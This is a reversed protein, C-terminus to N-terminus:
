RMAVLHRRASDVRQRQQEYSISLWLLLGGGVALLLWRPLLDTVVAHQTLAAAVCVAVGIVLPSQLAWARGAAVLAAGLAVALALRVLDAPDDTLQVVTPLTLLTLGSALVPWSSATRARLGLAALAVIALAPPATYAEVVGVGRDAMVAWSSASAAGTAVWRLWRRDPRWVAVAASSVALVALAAALWLPDHELALGAGLGFAVGAVVEVAAAHDDFRRVAAAVLLAVGAATALAVGAPGPGDTTAVVTATVLAVVDAACVAAVAAGARGRAPLAAGTVAAAVALAAITASPTTLAAALTALSAAALAVPAGITANSRRIVAVACAVLVLGAVAGGGAPWVAIGLALVLPGGLVAALVGAARRHEVAVALGAVLAAVVVASALTAVDPRAIVVAPVSPWPAGARHGVVELLWGYTAGVPVTAAGVVPVMGLSAGRRAPGPGMAALATVGAAVALVVAMDPWGAARGSLAGAVGLTGAGWMGASGAAVWRWSWPDGARRALAAVAVNAVALALGAGFAARDGPVSPSLGVLVAPATIAAGTWLLAAGLLTVVRWRPVVVLLRAAYGGAVLGAALMAAAMTLVARATAGRAAFQDAALVGLALLAVGALWATLVLPSRTGTVRALGHAVVALLGSTLALVAVDRGIADLLGARWLGNLLVALLTVTLVATAEATRRLGRRVLTATLRGSAAAAAVLVGARVLMPLDRWAVATFVVAAVVLLAVGGAALLTQPGADALWARVLGAGAWGRRDRTAPAPESSPLDVPAAGLRRLVSRRDGLLEAIREDIEGLRRELLARDGENSTTDM